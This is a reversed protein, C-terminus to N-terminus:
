PRLLWPLAPCSDAYPSASEEPSCSVSAAPPMPVHVVVNDAYKTQCRGKLDLAYDLVDTATLDCTVITQSDDGVDVFRCGTPLASLSSWTGLPFGRRETPSIMEPLSDSGTPSCACESLRITAACVTTDSKRFATDNIDANLMCGRTFDDDTGESDAVSCDEVLLQAAEMSNVEFKMRFDEEEVPIGLVDPCSTETCSPLPGAIDSNWSTFVCQAVVATPDDELATIQAFTLDISPETTGSTYDAGLNRGLVAPAPADEGENAPPLQAIAFYECYEQGRDSETVGDVDNCSWRLYKETFALQNDNFADARRLTCLDEDDGDPIDCKEGACQDDDGADSGESACATLVTLALPACAFLGPLRIWRALPTRLSSDAVHIM